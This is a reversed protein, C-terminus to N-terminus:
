QPLVRLPYTPVRTGEKKEKSGLQCSTIAKRQWTSGAMSDVKHSSPSFDRALIFNEEKYTTYRLYKTVAVSLETVCKTKPDDNLYYSSYICNTVFLLKIRLKFLPLCNCDIFPNSFLLSTLWYETNMTVWPFHLPLIGQRGWLQAWRWHSNRGQDCRIDTLGVSEGKPEGVREKCLSEKETFIDKDM